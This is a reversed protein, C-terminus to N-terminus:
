STSANLIKPQTQPINYYNKKKILLLDVYYIFCIKTLSM